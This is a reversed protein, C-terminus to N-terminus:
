YLNFEVRRNKARGAATKNSAIPHVPGMGKSVIQSAGAGKGTLYDKVANARGSSLVLNAAKKGVNDTYGTLKLHLNPKSVLLTALRDLSSDSSATIVTSNNEFTLNRVAARVVEIDQQIIIPQVQTNIVPIPLDCGSGDVKTGPTTNPCKDFTDAVGDKDTDKAFNDLKTQMGTQNMKLSDIIHVLSDNNKLDDYLVSIPNNWILAKERSSGITYELGGYGFGLKSPSSSTGTPVYLNGANVLYLDYGLNLALGESLRFKFGVGVPIFGSNVTKGNDTTYSATASSSNPKFGAYGYGATIFARVADKRRLFDISAVDVEMKVSAMYTIKTNASVDNASPSNYASNYIPAGHGSAMGGLYDLRLGFSHQFQWKLFGAYGLKYDNKAFQNKGGLPSFPMLVGANAGISFQSFQQRGGFTKIKNFGPYTIRRRGTDPMKSSTETMSQASSMLTVSGLFLTLLLTISKKM